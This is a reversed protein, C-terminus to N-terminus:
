EQRTLTFTGTMEWMASRDSKFRTSGGSSADSRLGRPDRYRRSETTLRLSLTTEQRQRSSPFIMPEPKPALFGVVRPFYM